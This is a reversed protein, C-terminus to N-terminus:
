GSHFPNTEIESQMVELGLGALADAMMPVALKVIRKVTDIYDLSNGLLATADLLVPLSIGHLEDQEM